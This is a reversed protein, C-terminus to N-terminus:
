YFNGSWLCPTPRLEKQPAFDAGEGRYAPAFSGSWTQWSIASRRRALLGLGACAMLSISGPEPVSFAWAFDATPNGGFFFFGGPPDNSTYDSTTGSQFFGDESSGISPPAFIGQGFNSLDAATATAANSNDFAEGAWFFDSPVIFFGGPTSSTITYLSVSGAPQVVQGPNIAALLTGPGANAGDSQYFRLDLNASVTNAGLNAVSFTISTVPLGVSEAIPTIDDAVLPTYDVAPSGVATTPGNSYAFGTNTTLNSYAITDAWSASAVGMLVAAGFFM